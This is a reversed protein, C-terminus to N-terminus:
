KSEKLFKTLNNPHNRLQKSLLKPTTLDFLHTIDGIYSIVEKM